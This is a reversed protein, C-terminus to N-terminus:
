KSIVQLNRTIKKPSPTYKAIRWALLSVFYSKEFILGYRSFVFPNSNLNKNYVILHTSSQIYARSM